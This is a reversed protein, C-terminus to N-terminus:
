QTSLGNTKLHLVSGKKRKPQRPGLRVAAWFNDAFHAPTWESIIKQSMMGMRRRNSDDMSSMRELAEAISATSDAQFIFGNKGDQVLDYSCGVSRSVLVPLGCAMAENVVLGWQEHIAPHVFAAARSYYIVIEALQNFGAFTVEPIQESKVRATLGELEDGIGLIVLRWGKTFKKRYLVYGSLLRDINKRAILRSAVMFYPRTSALGPLSKWQDLRTSPRALERAFFGNDVVDYKRFIRSSPMGLENLYTAHPTGGCIASDFRSVYVRKVLERWFTRRSDDRKTESMLIRLRDNRCCWNLAARSDAMGYGSIGLITPQIEDLIRRLEDGVEWHPIEHYVRDPFIVRTETEDSDLMKWPRGQVLSATALGVVKFGTPASQQVARLRAIHYPGFSPWQLAIIM